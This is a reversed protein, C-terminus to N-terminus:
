FALRADDSTTLTKIAAEIRTAAEECLRIHERVTSTFTAPAAVNALSAIWQRYAMPLPDLAAKLIIPAYAESLKLASLEPASGFEETRWDPSPAIVPYLPIYETRLDPSQFQVREIDPVVEADGWAFPSASGDGLPREPDIERWVAACLHGRALASRERYLLELSDEDPDETRGLHRIISELRCGEALLIRIQPQFVFDEPEPFRGNPRRTNAFFVSIRHLGKELPICRMQLIVDEGSPAARWGDDALLASTLYHKPTRQCTVGRGEGQREYRAWTACIKLAPENVSRVVFSIGLSRPPSSPDLAPALGVPPVISVPNEDDEEDEAADGILSDSDTDVDRSVSVDGLELLPALVGTMYERHPEAISEVIGNRPGLLERQLEHVLATRVSM